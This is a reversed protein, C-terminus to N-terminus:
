NERLSKLGTTWNMGSAIEEWWTWGIFTWRFLTRRRFTWRRAVERLASSEDQSGEPEVFALLFRSAGVIGAVFLGEDFKQAFVIRGLFIRAFKWFIIRLVIQIIGSDIRFSVRAGTVHAGGFGASSRGV